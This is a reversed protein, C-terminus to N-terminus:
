AVLQLAAPETKAKPEFKLGAQALVWTEIREHHLRLLDLPRRKYHKEATASPKHGQIQAVVGAPIELWETLSAFSRRLGHLTLGELGAAKCARTHPTNPESIRGDASRNVVPALAAAEGKRASKTARRKVNHESMDLAYASSFVWENRRPLACLLHEVYPTLPIERTGEIKDRISIGKWQLNVDEWRMSLVEGPRAGTLLMVQLAAAICPNQIKSVQVFWAPLQERTLVDSKVGPRGLAERTKRTKAPNQQPLIAAYQPHEGCWTLFVTLLRWALRASSARVKGEAVAWREITASDLESLKLRMLPALPGPKTKVGKKAGRRKSQEGGPRAKDLHDRYHLAGWLPQREILYADWAEGVTLGGALADAAETVQEAARQAEQEREVERPDTGADLAVALRRAEARAQEIGWAKVEGITRRITQGRLRGEFAYTKRGTPTVRLLLGPADSDWLFAQSKGPPCTFGEVRGATLRTRSKTSTM